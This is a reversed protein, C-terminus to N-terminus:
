IFDTIAQSKIFAATTEGNSRVAKRAGYRDEDGGCAAFSISIMVLLVGGLLTRFIKTSM